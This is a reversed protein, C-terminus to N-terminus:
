RAPVAGDDPSPQAVTTQEPLLASVSVGRAASDAPTVEVARVEPHGAITRLQEASGRVVLALVCACGARLRSASVAGVSAARDTKADTLQQLRSGAAVESAVLEHVLDGQDVVDVPLQATQVNEIPVRFIVRALRAQGPLGAVDAPSLEARLSVLAWYPGGSAPAAAATRAVYADVREGSDPGLTVTATGARRVPTNMGLVSAAVVVVLIVLFWAPAPGLRLKM